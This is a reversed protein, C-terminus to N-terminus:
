GKQNLGISLDINVLSKDNEGRKFKTINMEVPAEADSDMQGKRRNESKDLNIGHPDRKKSTSFTNTAASDDLKMEYRVAACLVNPDLDPDIKLNEEFAKRLSSEFSHYITDWLEQTEPNQYISKKM